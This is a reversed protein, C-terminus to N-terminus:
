RRPFEYERVNNARNWAFNNAYCVLSVYFVDTQPNYDSTNLHWKIDLSYWNDCNLTQDQGPRLNGSTVPTEDNWDDSTSNGNRGHAEFSVSNRNQGPNFLRWRRTGTAGVSPIRVFLLSLFLLVTVM